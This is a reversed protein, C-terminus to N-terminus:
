RGQEGNRVWIGQLEISSKKSDVSLLSAAIKCEGCKIKMESRWKNDMNKKFYVFGNYFEDDKPKFEIKMYVIDGDDYQNNNDKGDLNMDWSYSKGNSCYAYFIGNPNYGNYHSAFNTNISNFYKCDFGINIQYCSRIKFQIIYSKNAQTSLNTFYISNWKYESTNTIIKSREDMIIEPGYQYLNRNIPIQHYCQINSYAIITNIFLDAIYKTRKTQRLFGSILLKIKIDSKTIKSSYPNLPNTTSTHNPTNFDMFIDDYQDTEDTKNSISEHVMLGEMEELTEEFSHLHLKEATKTNFSSLTGVVNGM